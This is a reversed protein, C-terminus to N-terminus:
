RGAFGIPRRHRAAPTTAAAPRALRATASMSARLPSPSPGAPASAIQIEPMAGVTARNIAPGIRSTRKGSPRGDRRAQHTTGASATTTAIRIATTASRGSITCIPAQIAQFGIWRSPRSVDDQSESQIGVMAITTRSTPRDILAKTSRRTWASRVVRRWSRQSPAAMERTMMASGPRARRRRHRNNPQRQAGPRPHRRAGSPPPPRRAGSGGRRSRGSRTAFWRSRPRSRRGPRPRRSSCRPGRRGGPRPPQLHCAPPPPTWAAPRPGRGAPGSPPDLTGDVMAEVAGPVVDVVLRTGQLRGQAVLDVDARDQVLHAAGQDPRELRTVNRDPEPGVAVDRPVVWADVSGPASSGSRPSCSM